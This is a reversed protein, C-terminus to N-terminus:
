KAGSIIKKVVHSLSKSSDHLVAIERKVAYPNGAWANELEIVSQNIDMILKEVTDDNYM